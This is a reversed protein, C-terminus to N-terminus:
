VIQCLSASRTNTVFNNLTGHESSDYYLCAGGTTDPTTRIINGNILYEINAGVRRVEFDICSKKFQREYHYWSRQSGSEYIYVIWYPTAIDYRLISYIAFDIEQFSASYSCTDSLGVMSYSRASETPAVCQSWKLSVDGSLCKDCPALQNSWGGTISPDISQEYCCCDSYEVDTDCCNCPVSVCPHPVFSGTIPSETVVDGEVRVGNTITDERYASVGNVCGQVVELQVQDPFIVPDAPPIVIQATCSISEGEPISELQKGTAPDFFTPEEGECILCKYETINDILLSISDTGGSCVQLDIRHYVGNVDIYDVPYMVNAGSGSNSDDLTWCFQNGNYSVGQYSPPLYFSGGNGNDNTFVNTCLTDGIELDGRDCDGSGVQVAIKEKANYCVTSSACKPVVVDPCPPIEPCPPCEPIELNCLKDKIICTDDKISQLGKKEAM